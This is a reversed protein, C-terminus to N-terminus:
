QSGFPFFVGKCYNDIKRDFLDDFVAKAERLHFRHSIVPLIRLEKQVIKDVVYQWENKKSHMLSNWNGIITLEKRLIHGWLQKSFDPKSQPNGVISIIGSKRVLAISLEQFINAGSCELIAHAGDGLIEKIENEFGEKKSNFVYHAGTEKAIELKHDNRDVAVICSAGMIRAWQVALLGISGLGFVLVKDGQGVQARQVGHLAVATPEILSAEEFSVEEPITILNREPCKVYESFGGDCRSGLYNYNDCLNHKVEDCFACKDCHILPYVTVRDNIAFKNANDGKKVVIGAFEHGPITPFNYTGTTKVRGIDSGCIGAAIVKVLVENEAIDPIKVEDYSIHDIGHLVASRMMIKRRFSLKIFKDGRRLINSKYM